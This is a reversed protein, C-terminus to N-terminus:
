RTTTRTRELQNERILHSVRWTPLGSRLAAEAVSLLEESSEGDGTVVDPLNGPVRREWQSPM